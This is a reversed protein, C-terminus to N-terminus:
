KRSASTRSWLWGIDPNNPQDVSYPPLLTKATKPKTRTDKWSHIESHGDAFSFGCAGNHYSAPV